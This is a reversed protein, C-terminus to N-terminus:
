EARCILSGDIRYLSCGSPAFCCNCPPKLPTRSPPCLMYEPFYCVEPCFKGEADVIDMNGGLLIAGCVFVLIIAAGKLAM